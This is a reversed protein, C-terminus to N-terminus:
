VDVTWAKWCKSHFFREIKDKGQFYVCDDPDKIPDGCWRCRPVPKTKTPKLIRRTVYEKATNM